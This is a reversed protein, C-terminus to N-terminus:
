EASIVLRHYPLLTFAGNFGDVWILAPTSVDSPIILDTQYNQAM